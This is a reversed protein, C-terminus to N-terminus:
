LGVNQQQLPATTTSCCAEAAREMYSDVDEEEHCGVGSKEDPAQGPEPDGLPEPNELGTVQVPTIPADEDWETESDQARAMSPLEQLLWDSELMM